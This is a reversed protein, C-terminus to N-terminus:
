LDPYFNGNALFTIEDDSLTKSWLAVEDMKGNVSNNSSTHGCLYVYETADYLTAPISTTNTIDLTGNIYIKVATSGEFTVAVHTWTATNIAITGTTGVFTAGDGSFNARIYPDSDSNVVYFQRNNGTTNYCSIFRQFATSATDGNWNVWFTVSANALGDFPSDQVNNRLHGYNPTAGDGQIGGGSYGTTSTVTGGKVVLDFGTTHADATGSAFDAGEELDWWALLNATGPSTGGGGGGDIAVDDVKLNDAYLYNGAYTGFRFIDVTGTGGGKTVAFATATDTGDVPRSDTTSIGAYCSGSPAWDVWCYYKTGTSIAFTSSFASDAGNAYLSVNGTANIRFLALAASASTRFGAASQTSGPLASVELEFKSFRATSGVTVEAYDTIADIQLAQSTLVTHATSDFDPDGATSWTNATPTGVEEFDEDVLLSPAGGGSVSVTLGDIKPSTGGTLAVGDVKVGDGLAIGDRKTQSDLFPVTAVALATAVLLTKISKM